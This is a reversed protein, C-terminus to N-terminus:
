HDGRTVTASKGEGQGTAPTFSTDDAIGQLARDLDTRASWYERQADIFDRRAQMENQKAQLLQFVGVLMANHELKTLEVIRARRPVVVDRYYEVRARAEALTARASRLVSAAEAELANVMHRARLFEAEARTRAARGTNFIPIPLEVGPGVTREGSPEREYHFDLVTEELVSLRAIPIRQRAVDLERRAIALDLRQAAALDELQQQDMETDPLPPFSEPVRWEATPSRLGMARVLAERSLLLRQEARALDLKAQEYLAQENEFDLDTINEAAHQKLAVEAATQAAAASTRSAAVHQTAALLEYYASRVGAGFRLVESTVGMQAADFAARGIARRRPLQILEILSQAVRLEYPRYPDGPFRIELELVPNTITSAEILDARAIGLEALTVQLRPNNVMAIAVAEDATLEDALMAAVREHDTTSPQENWVVAPTGRQTLAQQVDDAGADRPVSVCGTLMTVGALFITVFRKM